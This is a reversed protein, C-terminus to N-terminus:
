KVDFYIYLDYFGPKHIEYNMDSLLDTFRNVNQTRKGMDKLVSETLVQNDEFNWDDFVRNTKKYSEREALLNLRIRYKGKQNRFEMPNITVQLKEELTNGNLGGELTKVSILKTGDIDDVEEYSINDTKANSKFINLVKDGMSSSAKSSIMKEVKVSTYLADPNNSVINGSNLTMYGRAMKDGLKMRYNPWNMTMGDRNEPITGLNVLTSTNKDDAKKINGDSVLLSPTGINKSFFVIRCNEVTRSYRDVFTRVNNDNGAVVLYFPRFADKNNESNYRVMKQQKGIDYIEGNFHGKMGIIAVANDENNFCKNKLALQLSEIDQNTQFLDTVIINLKGAKTSDIVKNLSTDVDRYFDKAQFALFGGRSLEVNRDGFKIYKVTANKWTGTISTEIQKVADAFITNHSFNVYGGMSYTGDIYIDADIKEGVDIKLQDAVTVVSKNGEKATQTSKCGCLSYCLSLALCTALIRRM